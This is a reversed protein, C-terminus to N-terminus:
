VRSGSIISIAVGGCHGGCSCDDCKMVFSELCLIPDHMLCYQAISRDSM